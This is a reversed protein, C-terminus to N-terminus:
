GQNKLCREDKRIWWTWDDGLYITGEIMDRFIPIVRHYDHGGFIGGSKVKPYYNIIDKYIQAPRHDGDVWVFDMNDPILLIANDSTEEILVYRGPYHDLSLRANTKRAEHEEIPLNAEFESTLDQTYPDITYIMQLNPLNLLLSKSFCGDGTGIEVGTIPNDSFTEIFVDTAQESQNRM